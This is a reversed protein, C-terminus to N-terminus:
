ANGQAHTKLKLADLILNEEWTPMKLLFIFTALWRITFLSKDELPGAHVLWYWGIDPLSIRTMSSFTIHRRFFHKPIWICEVSSSLWTLLPTPSHIKKETNTHIMRLNTSLPIFYCLASTFKRRRMCVSLCMLGNRLNTLFKKSNSNRIRQLSFLALVFTISNNFWWKMRWPVSLFTHM